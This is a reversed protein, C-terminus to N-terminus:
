TNSFNLQSEIYFWASYISNLSVVVARLIYPKSTRRQWSNRNTNTITIRESMNPNALGELVRGVTLFEEDSMELDEV